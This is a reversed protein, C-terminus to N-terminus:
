IIKVIVSPYVRNSPGTICNKPKYWVLPEKGEWFQCNNYNHQRKVGSYVVNITNYNINNHQYNYFLVHFAYM